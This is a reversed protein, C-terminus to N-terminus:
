EKRHVACLDFAILRENEVICTFQERLHRAFETYHALWWFAGPAFVIHTAGAQRQRELECVAEDDCEPPGWYEGHREMMPRASPIFDAGLHGDDVLVFPKNPDLFAEVHELLALTDRTWAYPTGAKIWSACDVPIGRLELYEKVWQFFIPYRRADRRLRYRINRGRAFNEGHTRYCGLPRGIRAVSGFIPALVCLYADAGHKDGCERVPTVRDLFHRKWAHGLGHRWGRPVGYHMTEALLNGVALEYSPLVRGTRKGRADIEWLPWHVKVVDKDQLNRVACEVATPLLTDDADLFIVIEGHSVDIGANFASAQGGNDKFVPTVADYSAIIDQSGDTSGDDVVIVETQAYTQKLASEIADSVYNRYNFNNIVISVVPHRTM